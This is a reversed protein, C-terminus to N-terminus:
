QSIRCNVELAGINADGGSVLEGAVAAAESGLAVSAGNPLEVLYKKQVMKYRIKEQNIKLAELLEDIIKTM